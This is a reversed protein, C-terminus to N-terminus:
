QRLLAALLENVKDRVAEVQAQTPPNSITLNLPQVILPNNASNYVLDGLDTLQDNLGNFQGRLEGAVVPSHDVPLNPDFPM